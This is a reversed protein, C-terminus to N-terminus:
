QKSYISQETLDIQRRLAKQRVSLEEAGGSAAQTSRQQIFM